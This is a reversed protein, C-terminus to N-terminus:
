GFLGDRYKILIAFLSLVVALVMVLLDFDKAVFNKAHKSNKNSLYLNEHIINYRTVAYFMLLMSVDVLLCWLCFVEIVVFSMYFMWGAFLLGFTVGMQAGFMFLRPFRLRLLGAVAITLMVPLTILGLFSNPFGFVTASGHSAVTSCNVLLSINCSLNANPNKALEIAEVSLVFSALLGVASGVLLLAFLKSDKREDGSIKGLWFNIKRFM